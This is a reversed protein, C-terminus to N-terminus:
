KIHWKVQLIPFKEIGKALATCARHNGDIIVGNESVVIYEDHLRDLEIERILKDFKMHSSDLYLKTGRLEKWYNIYPEKDGMVYKYYISDKILVQYNPRDKQMQYCKLKSLEFEVIKYEDFKPIFFPIYPFLPNSISTIKDITDFGFGSWLIMTQEEYDTAHIIHHESREGDIVPNFKERVEWKFRNILMCQKHQYEGSGVIFEEPAYNKILMVIMDKGIGELYETKGKIHEWPVTDTRYIDEISQIFNSPKYIRFYLLELNPYKYLIELIDDFYQIGHPFIIAVDLRM